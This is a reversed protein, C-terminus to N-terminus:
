AGIRPSWYVVGYFVMWTAAVWYWTIATCGLDMAIKDSLGHRPVWVVALLLEIVMMIIYTLHLGLVTWVTSGYANDAYGVQLGGFEMFRLALSILALVLMLVLMPHLGGPHPDRPAGEPDREVAHLHARAMRHVRAMPICGALLVLLNATSAGLLPLPPESPPLADLRPPPFTAYNRQLYYYVMVMLAVSTTEILLLLTNGWWVPHRVDTASTPLHAVDITDRM